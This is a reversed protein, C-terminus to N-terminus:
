GEWVTQVKIWSNHHLCTFRSSVTLGADSNPATAPTHTTRATCHWGWWWWEHRPNPRDFDAAMNGAWLCGFTSSARVSVITVNIGDPGLCRRSASATGPLALAALVVVTAVAVPCVATLYALGRKM